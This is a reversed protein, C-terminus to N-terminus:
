LHDFDSLAVARISWRRGVSNRCAGSLLGNSRPTWPRSSEEALTQMQATGSEWVDCPRPWHHHGRRRVPTARPGTGPLPRRGGNQPFTRGSARLAARCPWGGPAAPAPGSASSSSPRRRSPLATVHSTEPRPSLSRPRRDGARPGVPFGVTRSSLINHRTHSFRWVTAAHGRRRTLGRHLQPAGRGGVQRVQARLQLAHVASELLGALSAQSSWRLPALWM